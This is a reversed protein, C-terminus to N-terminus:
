NIFDRDRKLEVQRLEEHNTREVHMQNQLMGLLQTKQQKNKEKVHVAHENEKNTRENMLNTARM